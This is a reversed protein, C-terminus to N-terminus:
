KCENWVEPLPRADGPVLTSVWPFGWRGGSTVIVSLLLLLLPPISHPPLVQMPEAIIGAAPCGKALQAVITEELQCHPASTILAFVIKSVGRSPM